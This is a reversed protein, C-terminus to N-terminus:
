GRGGRRLERDRAARAETLADVSSASAREARQAARQLVEAVTPRSVERDIIELLYANLSKGHTAARAKLARRAEEPVGRIQLLSSVGAYYVEEL